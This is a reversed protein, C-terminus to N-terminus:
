HQKRLAVIVSNYQESGVEQRYRNSTVYLFAFLDGLGGLVTAKDDSDGTCGPDNVTNPRQFYQRLAPDFRVQYHGFSGFHRNTVLGIVFGSIHFREGM